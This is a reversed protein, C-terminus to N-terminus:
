EKPTAMIENAKIIIVTKMKEILYNEPNDNNAIKKLSKKIAVLDNENGNLFDNNIIFTYDRKDIIIVKNIGM